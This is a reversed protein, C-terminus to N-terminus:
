WFQNLLTFLIAAQIKKYKNKLFIKSQRVDRLSFFLIAQVAASCHLSFKAMYAALFIHLRLFSEPMHNSMKKIVYCM